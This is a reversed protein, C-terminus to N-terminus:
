THVLAQSLNLSIVDGTSWIRLTNQTWDVFKRRSLCVRTWMRDNEIMSFLVNVAHGAWELVYLILCEKSQNPMGKGQLITVCYSFLWYCTMLRNRGGLPGKVFRFERGYRWGRGECVWIHTKKIQIRCICLKEYKFTEKYRFIDGRSTADRIEVDPNRKFSFLQLVPKKLIGRSRDLSLNAFKLNNNYNIFPTSFDCEKLLIFLTIVPDWHSFIFNRNLM